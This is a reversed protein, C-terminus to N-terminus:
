LASRAPTTALKLVAALDSELSTEDIWNWQAHIAPGLKAYNDSYSGNFEYMMGSEYSGTLVRNAAPLRLAQYADFFRCLNEKKAKGLLHSLIFADEVAQGAGAGQHPSMAHAADGMLVVGDKHYFPLPRLHHIAWRTPKEICKLLQEVEPEWRAYCDLLERQECETVWEGEYIEGHREPQSAFTVVNVIDGESISYGVVHQLVLVYKSRGCYMMPTEITRHLSGSRGRPIDQVRILGRYAMTGTWIPQIYELLKADRETEAAERYMQTRIISKIGDAGILVDCTASTGDAFTLCIPGPVSNTKSYSVLHRSFHAIGTPLHHVFVDLFQARHFRICGYPMEVLKFRFGEEPQDSRRFDFGVGQTGTPPAHAIKSFESALGMSELIRWTRSWIMVGAGIERFQGAAEYLKVDLHPHKSLSVALCLGGIGGGCIAIRISGERGQMTYILHPMGFLGGTRM